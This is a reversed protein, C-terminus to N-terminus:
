ADEAERFYMDLFEKTVKGAHAKIEKRTPPGIVGCERQLMMRHLVVAVFDHSLRKPDFPTEDQHASFMKELYRYAAQPGIEYYLQGLEPSQVAEHFVLRRLALVRDNTVAQLISEAVQRLAADLQMSQYEVNLFDLRKRYARLEKFIVAEFLEKKSSFYRYISEKSIGSERAMANISTGTYGHSLFYDSAVKLVEQQKKTQRGEDFDVAAQHRNM